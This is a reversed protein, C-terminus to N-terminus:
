QWRASRIGDIVASGAAVQADSAMADAIRVGNAAWCRDTM